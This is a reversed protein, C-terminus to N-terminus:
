REIGVIIGIIDFGAVNWGVRAVLGFPRLVGGKWGTRSSPIFPIAFGAKRANNGGLRFARYVRKGIRKPCIPKRLGVGPAAM